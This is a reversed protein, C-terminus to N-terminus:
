LAPRSQELAANQNQILPDKLNSHAMQQDSPSEDGTFRRKSEMLCNCRIRKVDILMKWFFAVCQQSTWENTFCFLRSTLANVQCMDRGNEKLFTSTM